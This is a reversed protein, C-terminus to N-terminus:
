KPEKTPLHPVFAKLQEQMATVTAVLEQMERNGETRAKEALYKRDLIEPKALAQKDVSRGSLNAAEQLAFELRYIYGMAAINMERLEELEANKRSSRRLRAVTLAFVVAGIFALISLLVGLSVLSGV